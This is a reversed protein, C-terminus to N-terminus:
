SVFCAITGWPILYGEAVILGQAMFRAKQKSFQLNTDFDKYDSSSDPSILM